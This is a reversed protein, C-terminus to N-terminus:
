AAAVNVAVLGKPGQQVEFVVKLNQQLEVLSANIHVFISEQTRSDKIFGYGKSSDFFTVIGNRQTAVEENLERTNAVTPPIPQSSPCKDKPPPTDSLNGFEDVYAMMEDLSKGKSANEKREQKKEDKQKKANKKKQERERKNWTEGM